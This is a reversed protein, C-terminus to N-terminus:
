EAGFMQEDSGHHCRAAMFRHSSATTVVATLTDAHDM